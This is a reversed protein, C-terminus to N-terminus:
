IGASWSDEDDEYDEYDEYDKKEGYEGHEQSSGAFSMTNLASAVPGNSPFGVSVSENKPDWYMIASDEDEEMLDYIVNYVRCKNYYSLFEPHATKFLTKGNKRNFWFQMQGATIYTGDPEEGLPERFDYKNHMM